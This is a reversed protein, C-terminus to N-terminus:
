QIPLVPISMLPFVIM